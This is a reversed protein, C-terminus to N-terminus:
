PRAAVAERQELYERWTRSGRQVEAGALNEGARYARGIAGPLRVPLRPRRRGGTVELLTSV